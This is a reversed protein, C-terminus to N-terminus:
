VQGPADRRTFDVSTQTEAFKRASIGREFLDDLEEFTRGKLEPVFFYM